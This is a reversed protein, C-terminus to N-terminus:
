GPYGEGLTGRHDNEYLKDKSQKEDNTNTNQYDINSSSTSPIKILESSSLSPFYCM